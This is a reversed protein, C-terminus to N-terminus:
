QVALNQDEPGTTYLNKVNEEQVKNGPVSKERGKQDKRQTSRSSTDETWMKKKTIWFDQEAGNNEGRVWGMIGDVTARKSPARAKKIKRHDIFEGKNKQM